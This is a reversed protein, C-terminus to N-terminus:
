VRKSVVALLEPGRAALRRAAIRGWWWWCLVGVAVGVPVGLWQVPPVGSGLWVVALVPLAVVALLLAIGLQLLFRLLGPNNGASFPNARQDPLPYATFVSLLAVLGSGGGVLAPALALVWPYASPSALAPLVGVLVGTVPATLLLWALQRGRVDAEAARPTVLTHWLASGDMGYLNGALLCGMTVVVLGLFPISESGEDRLASPVGIMLALIASSLLAVRRRPDRLWTRLEKRAVAGVPTAPLWRAATSGSRRASPGINVPVRTTRRRLLAGWGAVLVGGLVVLGALAALVLLWNGREAADVAVPGWGSPAWRLVASLVPSSRDVLVPGLTQGLAQAFFILVGILATLLVGLDRGRRSQLVAGLAAMAVRSLLVALALQLPLAVVAVVVAPASGAAHVVLACFAVATVIAPVGLFAAGLLGGALQRPTFPLLAFHEPRLTEDGGGTFLPAFTWGLTWVLLLAALVDTDVGPTAFDAAAVLITLVAGILGVVAGGATLVADRGRLSHWLVRWKMRILVVVV